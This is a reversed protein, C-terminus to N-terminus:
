YEDKRHKQKRSYKNKLEVVKQTFPTNQAFLEFGVRRKPMKSKKM